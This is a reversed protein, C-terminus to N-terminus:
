SFNLKFGMANILKSLYTFIIQLKHDNWNAVMPKSNDNEILVTDLVFNHDDQQQEVAAILENHWYTGPLKPLFKLQFSKKEDMNLRPIEVM